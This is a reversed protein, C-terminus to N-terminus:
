MIFPLSMLPLAPRSILFPDDDNDDDPHSFMPPSVIPAAAASRYPSFLFSSDISIYISYHTHVTGAAIKGMMGTSRALVYLDM